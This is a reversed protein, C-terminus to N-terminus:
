LVKLPMEEMRWLLIFHSPLLITDPSLFRCQLQKIDTHWLVEVQHEGPEEGRMICSGPFRNLWRNYVSVEFVRM